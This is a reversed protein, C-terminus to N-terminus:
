RIGELADFVEATAPDSPRTMDNNIIKGEKDLLIFRPIGEINYAEQFASRQGIYLQVGTLTGGMVMEKWKEKNGDTSLGLFTIEADKFREELEKMYPMEKRCPNCWTAWLDIYVYKGRFDALTYKKGDVDYAEFDPSVKGPKSIDWKDYAKAYCALLHPMKVYTRYINELETINDIGYREVYTAALENLLIQRVKENQFKDVVYSMQAVTRQYLDVVSRNSADLVHAGELVFDRYEKVDVLAPDEVMYSEIVKYYEEDPVYSMDMTMLQHGVPYMLLMAGYAYRIRGEEMTEFNGASAVENAKMLKVSSEVKADIREKFDNFALAYDSDPLPALVVKNLYDVAPKKDGDFHFTGNFDNGDFTVSARDGREYYINKHERGYFLKAYSADVDTLVIEAHGEEDLPYMNVSTGVVLVVESATPDTVAFSLVIDDAKESKHSCGAMMVAAMLVTIFNKM